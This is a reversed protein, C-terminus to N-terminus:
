PKRVVYVMRKSEKSYPKLEEDFVSEMELNALRFLLRFQDLNYMHLGSLMPVEKGDVESNFSAFIKEAQEDWHKGVEKGDAKVIRRTNELIHEPNPMELIMRGGRKLARQLNRLVLFDTEVDFYGFSNFWNVIADFREHFDMDRMDMHFFEGELTDSQFRERAKQVFRPNLDLGTYHVGKRALHIGVRADGCPCDLVEMGESLGLAEWILGADSEGVEEPKLWYKDPLLKFWEQVVEGGLRPVMEFLLTQAKEEVERILEVDQHIVGIDPHSLFVFAPTTQVGDTRTVSGKELTSLFDGGRMSALGALLSVGPLNEMQGDKKSSLFKLFGPQQISYPKDWKQAFSAPELYADLTMELQTYGLCERLFAQPISGGMARAACEILVPGKETLKVETHGAGVSIKLADLVSFTYDLVQQTSDGLDAVLELGDYYPKGEPSLSPHVLWIDSVVHKGACSVTNVFVERGPAYEQALVHTIQDGLFSTSGKLTHFAHDVQEMTHCVFIGDAATSKPPKIVVPFHGHEHVWARLEDLKECSVTELSRVHAEQLAQHMSFKDTRAMSLSPDNGPVGLHSALTDALEVGPESGPIVAVPDFAQLQACLAEVSQSGDILASYQKEWRRLTFDAVHSIHAKISPPTTRVHVLPFGRKKILPVFFSGTSYGDVLVVSRLGHAM